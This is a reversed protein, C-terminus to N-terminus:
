PPVPKLNEGYRRIAHGMGGDLITVDKWFQTKEFGKLTGSLKNSSRWTGGTTLSSARLTPNPLAMLGKSRLKSMNYLM